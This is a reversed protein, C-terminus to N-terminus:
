YADQPIIEHGDRSCLGRVVNVDTTESIFHVSSDCFLMNVGGNHDSHFEDTQIADPANIIGSTNICNTGASWTGSLRWSPGNRAGRGSAEGVLITKSMGDIITSPRVRPAVLAGTVGRDILDSINLLVGRNNTYREKTAPNIVPNGQADTGKVGSNGGYDICALGEGGGSDLKGNANLDSIRSDVRSPLGSPLPQVHGTSPCIYIPIVQNTPGSLDAKWNPPVRHDLPFVILQRTTKQEIYDLFYSCWSWTRNYPPAASYDAQGPPFGQHASLYNHMGVGIQRLNNSCSMRRAAERAANIAPLLLGVLIGIITIVVLLEILTFGTAVRSKHRRPALRACQRRDQVVEPDCRTGHVSLMYSDGGLEM